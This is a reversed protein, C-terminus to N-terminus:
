KDSKNELLKKITDLLERNSTHSKILVSAVQSAESRSVNRGSFIMVPTKQGLKKLQAIVDMGPGDPLGLDLVILDYRELRLKETAEQLTDAHDFDAVGGGISRLVQRVDPDDEVHLVRPRAIRDHDFVVDSLQALLLQRDIPKDHWGVLVYGANLKDRGEVGYASVVVIPLRATAEQARLERILSIGDQGPLGIDLTMADFHTSGLLVKAQVADHAIETSCGGETLMMSLLLAIDHDDECILVRMPKGQAIDQSRAPLPVAAAVADTIVPLEFYFATGTGAESEFGIVGEMKEVIAKSISLGLGTGGKQRTDSSDAQSFKQFIHSRFTEPIGAGKDIVMVRVGQKGPRVAIEV